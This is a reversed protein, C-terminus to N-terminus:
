SERMRLICGVDIFFSGFICREVKVCAYFAVPPIQCPSPTTMSEVKVCAYFAVDYAFFKVEEEPSEVKM